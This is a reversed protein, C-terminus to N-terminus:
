EGNQIKNIDEITLGLEMLKARLKVNVRVMAHSDEYLENIEEQKQKIQAELFSLRENAEALTYKYKIGTTEDTKAETVLEKLNEIEQRYKNEAKDKWQIYNYYFKDKLKLRDEDIKEGHLKPACVEIHVYPWIKDVYILGAYSPIEEPKVLGRPVAYYFYNPKDPQEKEYSKLEYKNELIQHKETKKMDNFFDSRSIKIEVEYSYGAKTVHLYDSEWRYVFLNEIQYKAGNPTMFHWRLYRQIENETYHEKEGRKGLTGM